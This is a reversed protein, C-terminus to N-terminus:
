DVLWFWDANLPVESTNVHSCKSCEIDVEARAEPLMQQYVQRIRRSDKAPIDLLREKIADKDTDGDYSYITTKLLLHIFSTEPNDSIYKVIQDEVSIDVPWFELVSGNSLTFELKGDENIISFDKFQNRDKEVNVFNARTKIKQKANCEPCEYSKLQLVDGYAMKRSEYIVAARDALLISSPDIDLNVIVSDLFKDIATGAKSYEQSSLIEEERATMEKIEIKTKNHLPHDKPYFYGKSPLDVYFSPVAVNKEQQSPKSRPSPPRYAAPNIRRTNDRM